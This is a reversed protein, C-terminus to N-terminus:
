EEKLSREPLPLWKPGDLEIRAEMRTDFLLPSLDEQIEMLAGELKLVYRLLHKHQEMAQDLSICDVYSRVWESGNFYYARETNGSNDLEPDTECHKLTVLGLQEKIGKIVKENLDIEEM